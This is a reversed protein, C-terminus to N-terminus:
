TPEGYGAEHLLDLLDSLPVVAPWQGVTTPGAGDPRVVAMPFVGPVRRELMQSILATLNLNRRAKVEVDIGPVGTVDTGSRGAGTSEAFPWGNSAMYEAVIRQSAYGRYKRSQSM